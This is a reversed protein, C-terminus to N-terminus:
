YDLNDKVMLKRLENLRETTDVREEVIEIDALKREMASGVLTSQSDHPSYQHRSRKSGSNGSLNTKSTENTKRSSRTNSHYLPPRPLPDMSEQKVLSKESIMELERTGKEGVGWGYGWKGSKKSDNRVLASAKSKFTDGRVLRVKENSLIPVDYSDSDSDFTLKDADAHLTNVSDYSGSRKIKESDYSPRSRHSQESFRSRQSDTRVLDGARLRKPEKKRGFSPFCLPPPPPPPPPPPAM